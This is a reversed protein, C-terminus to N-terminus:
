YKLIFMGMYYKVRFAAKLILFPINLSLAYNTKNDKIIQWHLYFWISNANKINCIHYKTQM